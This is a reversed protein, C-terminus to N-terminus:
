KLDNIIEEVSGFKSIYNNVLDSQVHMRILQKKFYEPSNEAVKLLNKNKRLETYKKKRMQIVEDSDYDLIKGKSLLLPYLASSFNCESQSKIAELALSLTLLHFNTKNDMNKCQKILNLRSEKEEQYSTDNKNLLRKLAHIQTLLGLMISDQM